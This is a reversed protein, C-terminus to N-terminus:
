LKNIDLSRPDTSGMTGLRWCHEFEFGESMMYAGQAGGTDAAILCSCRSLYYVATLYTRNMMIADEKYDALQGLKTDQKGSYRKQELYYLSDGFHSKLAALIEADETALFIGDCDYERCVEEIKGILVPMEPQVAHGVATCLMDTGRALVGLWKKKQAFFAEHSRIEEQMEDSFRLYKKCLTRWYTRQREDARLTALGTPMRLNEIVVCNKKNKVESFSVDAPQKFFLEWVNKQKREDKSFFINEKTQMDIVPIMDHQVAYSVGAAGKLYYNFLGAEDSYLRLICYVPEKGGYRKKVKENRASIRNREIERIDGSILVRSKHLFSRLSM